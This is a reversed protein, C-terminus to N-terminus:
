SLIDCALGLGIDDNRPPGPWQGSAHLLAHAQSGKSKSLRSQADCALIFISSSTAIRLLDHNIDLCVIEQGPWQGSAHNRTGHLQVHALPPKQEVRSREAGSAHTSGQGTYLKDVFSLASGIICITIWDVLLHLSNIVFGRCAYTLLDRYTLLMVVLDAVNICASLLHTYAGLYFVVLYGQVFCAIAASLSGETLNPRSVGRVLYVMSWSIGPHLFWPIQILNMKVEGVM